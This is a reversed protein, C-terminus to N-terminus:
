SQCVVDDCCCSLVPAAFGIGRRAYLFPVYQILVADPQDDAIRSALAGMTGVRWRAVESAHV